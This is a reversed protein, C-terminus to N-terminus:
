ELTRNGDSQRREEGTPWPVFGHKGADLICDALTPFGTESTKEKGDNDLMQWSWSNGSHMRFSWKKRRETTM